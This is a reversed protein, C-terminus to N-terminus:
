VRGRAADAFIQEHRRAQAEVRELIDRTGKLNERVVALNGNLETIQVTLRSIEGHDPLSGLRQEVAVVREVLSVPAFTQRASWRAWALLPLAVFSLVLSVLPMWRLLEDM